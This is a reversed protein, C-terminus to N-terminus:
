MNGQIPYVLLWDPRVHCERLGNFEVKLAHDKGATLLIGNELRYVVEDLPATDLSRRIM